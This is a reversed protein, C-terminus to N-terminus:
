VPKLLCGGGEESVGESREGHFGLVGSGVFPELVGKLEIPFPELWAGYVREDIAGAEGGQEGRKSALSPLRGQSTRWQLLQPGLHDLLGKRQQLVSYPGVRLLRLLDL